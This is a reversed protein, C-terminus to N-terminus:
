NLALPMSPWQRPRQGLMLVVNSRGVDRTQKFLAALTLEGTLNQNM